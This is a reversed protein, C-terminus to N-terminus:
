LLWRFTPVFLRGLQMKWYQAKDAAAASQELLPPSVAVRRGGTMQAEVIRRLRMATDADYAIVSVEMNLNASREDFNYSGMVSICDDIIVTKNHLHNPGSTEYIEVGAALLAQKSNEFASYTMLRDTSHLSNTCIVVRLGRRRADFLVQLDPQAFVPYPTQILLSQQAEGILQLLRRQVSRQSKAADSEHLFELEVHPDCGAAWDRGAQLRIVSQQVLSALATQMLRRYDEDSRAAKWRETWEDEALPLARVFARGLGNVDDLPLVHPQSWLWQFYAAAWGATPGEIYVDCDIFSPTRLGFHSDQLNRSGMVLRQRDVILLKDHMRRNLTGPCPRDPPRYVHIEVGHARLTRHLGLPLRSMLGDVLLRVRVGRDAADILLCLVAAPVRGTDAAYYACDIEHRAQQIVDVRAQLAVADEPLLRCVDARAPSAALATAALALFAVVCATRGGMVAGRFPSVNATTRLRTEPM